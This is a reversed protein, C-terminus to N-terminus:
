GSTYRPPVDVVRVYIREGTPPMRFGSDEHMVMRPSIDTNSPPPRKTPRFPISRFPVVIPINSEATLDLDVRRYKRKRRQQYICAAIALAILVSGGVTVGVIPGINKSKNTSTRNSDGSTPSPDSTTLTSDAFTPSGAVTTPATSDNPPPSTSSSSSLPSSSTSPTVLGTQGGGAKAIAQFQAFTQNAPANVSFVMGHNCHNVPNIQACFFWLPATSVTISSQPLGVETANAAIPWFGSDFGLSPATQRTCPQAFTSQTVSQNKAHFEFVVTDGVDAVINTPDFALASDFGVKILYQAANATDALLLAVAM